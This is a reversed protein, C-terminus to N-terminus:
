YELIGTMLVGSYWVKYYFINLIGSYNYSSHISHNVNLWCFKVWLAGDFGCSVDNEFKAAAKLFQILSSIEHSDDALLHNM